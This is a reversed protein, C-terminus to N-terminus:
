NEIYKDNILVSIYISIVLFHRQVEECVEAGFVGMINLHERQIKLYILNLKLKEFVDKESPITRINEIGSRDSEVRTCM